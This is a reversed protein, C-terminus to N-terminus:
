KLRYWTFKLKEDELMDYVVSDDCAIFEHLGDGNEFYDALVWRWDGHKPDELDILVMEGDNPLEDPYKRPTLNEMVTKRNVKLGRLHTRKAQLFM